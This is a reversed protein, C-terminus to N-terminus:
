IPAFDALDVSGTSYSVQWMTFRLIHSDLAHYALHTMEASFGAKRLRGLLSEM